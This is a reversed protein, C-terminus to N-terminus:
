LFSFKQHEGVFLQSCATIGCRGTSWINSVTVQLHCRIFKSLIPKGVASDTAAISCLLWCLYSLTRRTPRIQVKLLLNEM